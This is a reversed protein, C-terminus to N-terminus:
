CFIWILQTNDLKGFIRDYYKDFIFGFAGPDKQANKVLKKEQDLNSM